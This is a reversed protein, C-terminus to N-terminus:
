LRDEMEEILENKTDEDIVLNRDKELILWNFAFGWLGPKDDEGIKEELSIIQKIINPLDIKPSSKFKLALDLCRKIKTKCYIPDLLINECIELNSNIVVLVLDIINAPNKGTVVKTFDIVLDAYRGSLIPNKAKKSRQEWYNLIELTIKKISPYEVMQNQDNPFVMMPGYYTGWGTEQNTYNEVFEFAIQEALDESSLKYNNLDKLIKNINSSIQYESAFGDETKLNLNNLYNLINNHLM